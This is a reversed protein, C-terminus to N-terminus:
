FDSLAPHHPEERYQLQSSFPVIFHLIRLLQEEPIKEFNASVERLTQMGRLACSRM